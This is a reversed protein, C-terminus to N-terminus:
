TFKGTASDIEDTFTSVQKRLVGGSTNKAYSGTLLGFMMRDEEGYDQLLGVPKANGSPYPKCNQELLGAVCVQARVQYDTIASSPVSRYWSFKYSDTGTGEEHRFVINHEGADLTISGSYTQCDCAGHGGYYGAVVTGGSVIGTATDYTGDVIVEVADDGDVAFQYTGQAPIVLKGRIITLYDDDPGFPNGSADIRSINGNGYKSAAVALVSKALQDFATHNAPHTVSNKDYTTITLDKFASDPVVAWGSSGSTACNPGSGGHLCKTGAVPREISVWEWIRYQSDNLVRLLPPGPTSSASASGLTTNAFLHRTGPAPLSLPAYKRIDYGDGLGSYEKGWSHADQPVNSRELVTTNTLDISRTGGYLVKRLADMRSTTLYNLFDGSWQSQQM